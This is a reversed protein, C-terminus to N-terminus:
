NFLFFNLYKSFFAANNYRALTVLFGCQRPDQGIGILTDIVEGMKDLSERTKDAGLPLRLFAGLINIKSTDVAPSVVSLSLVFNSFVKLSKSNVTSNYEPDSNM